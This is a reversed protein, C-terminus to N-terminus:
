DAFAERGRERMGAAVDGADADERRLEVALPLLDQQLQDRGGAM